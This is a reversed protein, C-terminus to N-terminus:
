SLNNHERVIHKRQAAKGVCELTRENITLRWLRLAHFDKARKFTVPCLVRHKARLNTKQKTNNESCKLLWAVKSRLHGVSRKVQRLGINQDLNRRLTAAPALLRLAHTADQPLSQVQKNTQQNHCPRDILALFIAPTSCGPSYLACMYESSDVTHSERHKLGQNRQQCNALVRALCIEGLPALAKEHVLTVAVLNPVAM